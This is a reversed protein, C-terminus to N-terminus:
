QTCATTSCTYDSNCYYNLGCDYSTTVTNNYLCSGSQCTYIDHYTLVTAPYQPQQGSPCSTTESSCSHGSIKSDCQQGENRPAWLCKANETGGSQCYYNRCTTDSSCHSDSSCVYATVSQAQTTVTSSSASATEFYYSHSASPADFSTSYTYVCGNAYDTCSSDQKSMDYDTGDLNIRVYDPADGDPDSYNVSFTFVTGAHGSSNGGDNTLGSSPSVGGNLLVPGNDSCDNDNNHNCGSPCCGDGNTCSTIQVHECSGSLCEDKTCANNDSSCSTGDPLTSNVCQFVCKNDVTAQCSGIVCENGTDCESDNFCGEHVHGLYIASVNGQKCLSVAFSCNPNLIDRGGVTCASECFNCPDHANVLHVSNCHEAANRCEAINASSVNAKTNGAVFYVVVGSVLLVAAIIVLYELSGQAKKM